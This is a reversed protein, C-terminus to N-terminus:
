AAARSVAAIQVQRDLPIVAAGRSESSCRKRRPGRVPQGQGFFRHDVGQWAPRRSPRCPSRASAILSTDSNRFPECPPWAACEPSPISRIGFQDAVPSQNDVGAPGGSVVIGGQGSGAWRASTSARGRHRSERGPAPPPRATGQGATTRNSTSSASLRGPGRRHQCGGPGSTTETSIRELGPHAVAIRNSGAMPQLAASRPPLKDSPCGIMQADRATVVDIQGDHIM